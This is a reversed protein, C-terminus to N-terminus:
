LCFYCEQDTVDLWPDGKALSESELREESESPFTTGLLSGGSWAPTWGAESSDTWFNGILWKSCVALWAFTTSSSSSDFIPQQQLDWSSFTLQIKRSRVSFPSFNINQPKIQINQDIMLYLNFHLFNTITVTVLFWLLDTNSRINFSGRIEEELLM